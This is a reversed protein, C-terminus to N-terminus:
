KASVQNIWSVLDHFDKGDILAESAIFDRAGKTFSSTTVLVGVNAKSESFAVTGLLARMTELHIKLQKSYKKCEFAFLLPIDNVKKTAIIDRGGDGSRPTVTVNSFGLKEIIEAVFYEFDRPLIERLLSPDDLIKQFTTVPLFNVAEFSEEISEPLIIQGEQDEGGEIDLLDYEGLYISEQELTFVIGDLKTVNGISQISHLLEDSLKIGQVAQHVHAPLMISKQIEIAKSWVQMRESIEHFARLQPRFDRLPDIDKFLKALRQQDEIIKNFPGLSRTIQEIQKQFALSPALAKQPRQQQEIAKTIALTHPEKFPYKGISM